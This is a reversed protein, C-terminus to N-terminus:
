PRSGSGHRLRFLEIGNVMGIPEYHSRVHELIRWSAPTNYKDDAHFTVVAPPHSKLLDLVDRLDTPTQIGLATNYFRFPNRRGSLFYLEANSPVAFITSGPPAESRILSVLRAYADRDESDLRLSARELGAGLIDSRRVGQLIDSSSRRYSQGAHFFFAIAILGTAIGACALRVGRRGTAHQWLVAALCIGASYHLYIPIQYHISVVAYFAAM